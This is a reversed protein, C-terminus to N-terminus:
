LQEVRWDDRSGVDDLSQVAPELCVQGTSRTIDKAFQGRTWRRVLMMGGVHGDLLVRM